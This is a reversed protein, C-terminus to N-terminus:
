SGDVPIQLAGNRPVLASSPAFKGGTWSSKTFVLKEVMRLLCLVLFRSVPQEMGLVVGKVRWVVTQKSIMLRKKVQLRLADPAVLDDL